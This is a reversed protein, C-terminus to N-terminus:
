IDLAQILLLLPPLFLVFSKSLRLLPPIGLFRGPVLSQQLASMTFDMTVPMAREKFLWTNVMESIRFSIILLRPDPQSSSGSCIWRWFNDGCCSLALPYPSEMSVQHSSNEVKVGSAVASGSVNVHRQKHVNRLYYTNRTDIRPPMNHLVRWLVVELPMGTGARCYIERSQVWCLIAELHRRCHSPKKATDVFSSPTDLWILSDWKGRTCDDFVLIYLM